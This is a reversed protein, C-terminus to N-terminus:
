LETCEYVPSNRFINKILNSVQVKRNIVEKEDRVTHKGIEIIELALRRRYKDEFHLIEEKGLFHGHDIFYKAHFALKPLNTNEFSRGTEGICVAPCNECNLLYVGNRSGPPPPSNYNKGKFFLRGIKFYPYFVPTMNITKLVEGLQSTLEPLFPLPVFNKGKGTRLPRTFTTRILAFSVMKRLIRGDIELNISNAHALQKLISVEQLLPSPSPFLSGATYLNIFLRLNTLSFASLPAM